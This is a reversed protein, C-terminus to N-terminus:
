CACHRPHAFTRTEGRPLQTRPAHGRERESLHHDSRNAPTGDRVEKSPSKGEVRCEEEGRHKANARAEGRVKPHQASPHEEQATSDPLHPTKTAIVLNSRGRGPAILV